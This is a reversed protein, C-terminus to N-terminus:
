QPPRSAAAEARSSSGPLELDIQILTPSGETRGEQSPRRVSGCTGCGGCGGRRPALIQTRILWIAAAAVILLAALQQWDM